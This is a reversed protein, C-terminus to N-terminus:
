LWRSCCKSITTRKSTDSVRTESQNASSSARKASHRNNDGDLWAEKVAVKKIFVQNVPTQSYPQHHQNVTTGSNGPKVGTSGAFDAFCGPLSSFSFRLDKEVVVVLIGSVVYVM